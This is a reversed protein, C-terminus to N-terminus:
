ASSEDEDENGDILEDWDVDAREGRLEIVATDAGLGVSVPDILVAEPYVKTLGGVMACFVDVPVPCQIVVLEREDDTARTSVTTETM